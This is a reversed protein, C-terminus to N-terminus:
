HFDSIFHGVVEFGIRQLGLDNEDIHGFNRCYLAFTLSRCRIMLLMFGYSELLSNRQRLMVPEQQVRLRSEVIQWM